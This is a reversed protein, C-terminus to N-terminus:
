GTMKRVSDGRRITGPQVVKACLGRLRMQRGVPTMVFRQADNGFRAAFKACGTHPQDTVEIVAEGIALRTGAPLNEESLDLDVFLQDGALQRREKDQAVLDIFRINIVNLQMDPHAVPTPMRSSPREIWNDGVLGVTLDLEGEELVDRVNSQPRRVILDLTGADAPSRRVEELGAEIEATSLHTAEAIM